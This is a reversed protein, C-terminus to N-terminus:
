LWHPSRDKKKKLSEEHQINACTLAEEKVTGLKKLIHSYSM